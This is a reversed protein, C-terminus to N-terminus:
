MSLFAAVTVAAAAVASTRRHLSSAAGFEAWVECKVHMKNYEEAVNIGFSKIPKLVVRCEGGDKSQCSTELWVWGELPYCDDGGSQICDPFAYTYFVWPSDGGAKNTGQSGLDYWVRTYNTDANYSAPNDEPRNDTTLTIANSINNSQCTAEESEPFFAVTINMWRESSPRDSNFSIAM